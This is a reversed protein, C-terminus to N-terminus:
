RWHMGTGPARHCLARCATGSNRLLNRVFGFTVKSALPVGDNPNARAKACRVGLVHDSIQVSEQGLLGSPPRCWEDEVLELGDGIMTGMEGIKELCEGVFVGRYAEDDCSGLPM